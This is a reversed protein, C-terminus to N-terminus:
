QTDSSPREARLVAIEKELSKVKEELLDIMQKREDVLENLRKIFLDKEAIAQRDEELLTNYYQTINECQQNHKELTVVSGFLLSEPTTNLVEAIKVIKPNFIKTPGKEIKIYSNLSVDIQEAVCEQSLGLEKRRRYINEKSKKNDMRQLVVGIVAITYVVM